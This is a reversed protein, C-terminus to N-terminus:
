QGFDYPVPDENLLPNKALDEAPYPLQFDDVTPTEFISNTGFGRDSNAILSIADQTSLIRQIDYWYEGEVVFEARREALLSEKTIVTADVLGARNRVMNFSELASADSTSQAGAMIAEAHILLVDAYRMIYTTNERGGASGETGTRGVFYKKIASGTAQANIENTVTLANGDNDIVNAYTDGELMYTEKRRLDGGEFGNNLLDLTPGYIEYTVEKINSPTAAGFLINGQNDSFYNNVIWQLSFISEENNNNEILFLDSFTKEPLEDGGFLKFEGSDIVEQAITQANPYDEMYLYVKAMIAKASGMSVRENQAYDVGRTKEPLGEQAKELDMIIFNYIDSQPNTNILPNDIYDSANEIIPVNVWIRTLYFYAVARFFYAESIVQNIVSEDVESGYFDSPTNIIDNAQAVISWLSGWADGLGSSTSTVNLNWYDQHSFSLVNGSLADGISFFAAGGNVFLSWNIHYLPLIRQNVESNTSYFNGATITDLPAGDLFEDQDCSYTTFLSCIILLIYIKSIKM